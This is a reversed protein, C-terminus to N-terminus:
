CNWKEVWLDFKRKSFFWLDKNYNGEFELELEVFMFDEFFDIGILEEVVDIFIIFKYFLEYNVENDFVFVIGKQELEDLDFLVKFYVVLVVVDNDKGIYGKFEQSLVLGLVVYFWGFKKVWDCIFEELEWWIGQNFNCFQLSINSMLFIEDMVELDYVMDVVLVMYGCDYGFGCYDNFIVSGSSIVFDFCFNDICELWFKILNECIFIYVVWDVQEFDENYSIVYDKYYYIELGCILLFLFYEEGAYVSLEEEMVWDIVLVDSGFFFNFLFYLGGIIVGFIGVWVIM